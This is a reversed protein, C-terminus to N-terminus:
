HYRGFVEVTMGANINPQIVPYWLRTLYVCLILWWLLQGLLKEGIYVSLMLPIHIWVFKYMFTWLLRMWLLLLLFLFCIWYVVVPSHIFLHPILIIVMSFLLASVCVSVHISGSFIIADHVTQTFELLCHLVSFGPMSYNMPDWLAPCSKTVSRYHVNLGHHWRVM